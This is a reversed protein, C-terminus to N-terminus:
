TTVAKNIKNSTIKAFGTITFTKTNQINSLDLNNYQISVGPILGDQVNEISISDPLTLTIGSMSLNAVVYQDLSDPM